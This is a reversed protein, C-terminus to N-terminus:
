RCSTRFSVEPIYMRWEFSTFGGEAIRCARGLTDAVIEPHDGLDWLYVGSGFSTFATRGDPGFVVDWVTARHDLGGAPHTQGPKAVSWLSVVSSGTSTSAVMTGAPHITRGSRGIEGLLEPGDPGRVDWLQRGTVALAGDASFVASSHVDALADDSLPVLAAPEAATDWM